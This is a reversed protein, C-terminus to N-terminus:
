SKNSKIKSECEIICKRLVNMREVHNYPKFWYASSYALGNIPKHGMLELYDKIHISYEESEIWHTWLIAKCLCKPKEGRWGKDFQEYMINYASLRQQITM